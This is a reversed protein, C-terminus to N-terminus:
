GGDATEPPRVTIAGVPCIDVCDGCGTCADSRLFPQAGGLSPGFAIAGEGCADRCSFCSVGNLALCTCAITARAEASELPVDLRVRGRLLARREPSFAAARSM